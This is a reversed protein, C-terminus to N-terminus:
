LNVKRSSVRYYGKKLKERLATNRPKAGQQKIRYKGATLDSFSYKGGKPTTTATKKYLKFKKSYKYLTISSSKKSKGSIQGKITHSMILYTSPNKKSSSIESAEASVINHKSDVKSKLKRLSKKSKVEYLKLSKENYGEIEADNYHVKITYSSSKKAKAAALTLASGSIHAIQKGIGTNDAGSIHVSPTASGVGSIHPTQISVSGSIHESSPAISSYGPDSGSKLGGTLSTVTVMPVIIMSGGGGIQSKSYALKTGDPAWRIWQKSIGTEPYFENGLFGATTATTTSDLIFMKIQVGNADGQSASAGIWKGDRSWGPAGRVTYDSAAGTFPTIKRVRSDDLSTIKAASGTFISQIGNLVYIDGSAGLIGIRDVARVGTPNGSADTEDEPSWSASWVQLGETIQVPSVGTLESKDGPDYALTWIDGANDGSTSRIFLLREKKVGEDWISDPKIVNSYNTGGGSIGSEQLFTTVNGEVADNTPQGGGTGGPNDPDFDELDVPGVGLDPDVPDSVAKSSSSLESTDTDDLNFSMIKGDVNDTAPHIYFLIRQDGSVWSHYNMVTEGMDYQATKGLITDYIEIKEANAGALFRGSHSWSPDGGIAVSIIDKKTSPIEFDTNEAAENELAKVGAIIVAPLALPLSLLAIIVVNKLALSSKKM